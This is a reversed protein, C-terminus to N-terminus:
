KSACTVEGKTLRRQHFMTRLWDLCQQKSEASYLCTSIGAGSPDRFVAWPREGRYWAYTRIDYRM